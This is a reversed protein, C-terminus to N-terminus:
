GLRRLRSSGARSAVVQAGSAMTVRVRGADLSDFRTVHDLNVVHSRHIRVFRVPDFRKLLDGLTTTILTQKAVAHVVVYDDSAELREIQAVPISVRGNGRPVFLHELWRTPQRQVDSPHVLTSAEHIRRMARAFRGPGFPKLLYDIAGLEFADIAYDYATTFVVFRARDATRLVDLGLQGPMQIDLFAIDPPAAAIVAAAADGDGVEAIEGVWEYASLLERLTRRAPPEDDAILVRLGKM